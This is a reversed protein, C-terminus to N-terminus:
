EKAVDQLRYTVLTFEIYPINYRNFRVLSKCIEIDILSIKNKNRQSFNLLITVVRGM